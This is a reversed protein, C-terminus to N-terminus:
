KAILVIVAAALAIVIYTLHENSLAGGAVEPGPKEDRQSLEDVEEPSLPQPANGDAPHHSAAGRVPSQQEKGEVAFGAPAALSLCLVVALIKSLLADLQFRRM